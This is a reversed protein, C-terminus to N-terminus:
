LLLEGIEKQSTITKDQNYWKQLKISLEEYPPKPDQAKYEEVFEQAPAPRAGWRAVVNYDDDLLILVPIARSGNYEFQDMLEPNEDRLVCRLEISDNTSAMANFIPVLQSADGCWPETIVLWKTAKTENIKSLTSDKVEVKKDLRHMRQENLKTYHVMSESQNVGTTKNEALLDQTMKRYGVYTMGSEFSSKILQKLEM